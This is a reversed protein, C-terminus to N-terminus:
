DPFGYNVLAYEDPYENILQEAIKAKIKRQRKKSLIENGATPQHYPANLDFLDSRIKYEAADCYIQNLFFEHSVLSCDDHSFLLTMDALFHFGAQYHTHTYKRKNFAFLCVCSDYWKSTIGTVIRIDLVCVLRHMQTHINKFKM